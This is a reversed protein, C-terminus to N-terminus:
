ETTLWEDALKQLDSKLAAQYEPSLEEFRQRLAELLEYIDM